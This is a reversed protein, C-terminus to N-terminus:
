KPLQQKIKERLDIIGTGTKLWEDDENWLGEWSMKRGDSIDEVDYGRYEIARLAGM